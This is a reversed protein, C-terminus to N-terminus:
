QKERCVFRSSRRGLVQESTRNILWAWVGGGRLSFLRRKRKNTDHTRAMEKNYRCVRSLLQPIKPWHCRPRTAFRARGRRRVLRARNRRSSVASASRQSRWRRLGRAHFLFDSM